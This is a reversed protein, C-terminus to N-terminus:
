PLPWPALAPPLGLSWFVRGFVGEFWFMSVFFYGYFAALLCALVVVVRLTWRDHPIDYIAHRDTAICVDDSETVAPRSVSPSPRSASPPRRATTPTFRSPLVTSTDTLGPRQENAM